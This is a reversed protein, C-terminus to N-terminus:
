GRGLRGSIAIAVDAAMRIFYSDDGLGTGHVQRTAGSVGPTTGSDAHGRDVLSIAQM